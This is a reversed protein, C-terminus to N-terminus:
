RTWLGVSIQDQRTRRRGREGSRGENEPIDGTKPADPAGIAAGGAGPVEIKGSGKYAQVSRGRDADPQQLDRDHPVACRGIAYASGMAPVKAFVLDKARTSSWARSIRSTAITITRGLQLTFRDERVGM